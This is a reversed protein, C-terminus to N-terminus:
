SSAGARAADLAELATTVLSGMPNDEDSTGEFMARDHRIAEELQLLARVEADTVEARPEPQGSAVTTSGATSLMFRIRKEIQATWEDSPKTLCIGKIMLACATIAADTLVNDNPM